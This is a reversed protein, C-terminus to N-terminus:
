PTRHSSNDLELLFYAMSKGHPAYGHLVCDFRKRQNNEASKRGDNHRQHKRTRVSAQRFALQATFVSARHDYVDGALVIGDIAQCSPAERRDLEDPVFVAKGFRIDVPENHPSERQAVPFIEGRFSSASGELCRTLELQPLPRSKTRHAEIV